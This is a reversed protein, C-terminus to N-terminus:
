DDEGFRSFKKTSSMALHKERRFVILTLILLTHLPTQPGCFAVLYPRKLFHSFNEVTFSRFTKAFFFLNILRKGFDKWLVFHHNIEM